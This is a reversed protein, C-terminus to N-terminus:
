LKFLIDNNLAEEFFLNSENDYDSLESCVDSTRDVDSSGSTSVYDSDNDM